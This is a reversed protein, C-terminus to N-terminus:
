QSSTLASTILCTLISKPTFLLNILESKSLINPEPYIGKSSLYSFPVKPPVPLVKSQFTIQCNLKDPLNINAPPRVELFTDWAILTECGHATSTDVPTSVSPALSSLLINAKAAATFSTLDHLLTNVSILM